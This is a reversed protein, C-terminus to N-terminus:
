PILLHHSDSFFGGFTASKKIPLFGNDGIFLTKAKKTIIPRIIRQDIMMCIIRIMLNMKTDNQIMQDIMIFIIRKM